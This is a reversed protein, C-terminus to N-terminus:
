ATRRRLIRAIERMGELFAKWFQRPTRPIYASVDPEKKETEPDSRTTCWTRPDPAGHVTGRNQPPRDSAAGSRTARPAPDPPPTLPDAGWM